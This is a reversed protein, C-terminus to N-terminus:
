LTYKRIYGDNTSTLCMTWSNNWWMWLAKEKGITETWSDDITSLDYPTTLKYWNLTTYNDPQRAYVKGGNWFRISVWGYGSVWADWSGATTLDYAVSMTAKYLINSYANAIYITLWDPTIYLWRDTNNFATLTQDQTATSIDWATSLSFREVEFPAADSRLVFMKTGDASFTLDEPFGTSINKSLSLSSIDFPTTLTCEYIKQVAADAFFIKDGEPKMFVGTYFGGLSNSTQALTRNSFDWWVSITVSVADCYSIGWLDSYSFVRYYYTTWDTLWSDTYGSVKYTDKVTETVVLDWDSPSTPASGVKRVLESKQFSTPPITWIENDEWTITADLWSSTVTLNLPEWINGWWWLSYETWDYILKNFIPM